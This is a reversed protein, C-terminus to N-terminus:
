KRRRAKKEAATFFIGSQFDFERGMYRIAYSKGVPPGWITREGPSILTLQAKEPDFSELTYGSDKFDVVRRECVLRVRHVHMPPADVCPADKRAGCAKCNEWVITYATIPVLELSRATESTAESGPAQSTM